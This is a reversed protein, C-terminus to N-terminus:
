THTTVYCHRHCLSLEPRCPEMYVQLQVRKELSTRWEKYTTPKDFEMCKEMLAYPIGETFKDITQPMSYEYGAHWILLKFTAIYEDVNYRNREWKSM